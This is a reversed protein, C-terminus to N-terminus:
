NLLLHIVVNGDAQSLRRKHGHVAEREQRRLEAQKHLKELIQEAQLHKDSNATQADDSGTFRCFLKSYVSM